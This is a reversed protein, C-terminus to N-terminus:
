SEQVGVLVTRIATDVQVLVVALILPVPIVKHATDMQEMVEEELVELLGLTMPITAEQVVVVVLFAQEQLLHLFVMVVQQLQIVLLMLDLKVQAVVVQEVQEVLLVVLMDKIQQGLEPNHEEVVKEVAVAVMKVM